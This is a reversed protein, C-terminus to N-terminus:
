VGTPRSPKAKPLEGKAVRDTWDGLEKFSRSGLQTLPPFMLSGAQGSQVRRIWGQEGTGFAEPITRTALQGLQHCGVCGNNKMTNLWGSQSVKEPIGDKNGPGFKTPIELM